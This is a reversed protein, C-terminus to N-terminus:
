LLLGNSNCNRVGYRGVVSMFPSSKVIVQIWLQHMFVLLHVYRGWKKNFAVEAIGNEWKSYPLKELKDVLSTKLAFAVSSKM